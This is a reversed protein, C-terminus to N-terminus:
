RVYVAELQGMARALDARSQNLRYLANIRNDTARALEDQAQVVEINSSVGAEFRHRAQELAQRALDQAEGAVVVENREAELEAQATQVEMGVQAELGRREQRIRELEDQARATQASIRGGTFLPVKVGVTVTWTNAWPAHSLGTSGYNGSAVVSPMALDRASKKLEAQAQERAELVAMEPRQGLGTRYAEQFAVAPLDPAALADAAEVRVSPDLNLVRALAYRAAQVQTEAQILRQQENRVQVQARLTDLRTGLGNKQQDQALQELVRALDVRSQAARVAEAARQLRLYQGVTLATIAERTERAQAEAARQGHRAAKWRDWLSLDLVPVSAQIAITGWSFPGIVDPGGATPTGLQTDLNYRLRTGQAGAEVSPMLAAAATRRDEQSQAIALLSRQVDSNQDLATRLAQGLTLSLPPPDAAALTGALALGLAALACWRPRAAGTERGQIIGEVLKRVYCGGGLLVCGERHLEALLGRGAEDVFTARSLDITTDGPGVRGQWESWVKALEAVWPGALKGELALTLRNEHATPTIRLMGAEQPSALQM